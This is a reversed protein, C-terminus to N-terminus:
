VPGVLGSKDDCVDVSDDFDVDAFEFDVDDVNVAVDFDVDAEDVMDLIEPTESVV